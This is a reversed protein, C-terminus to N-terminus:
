LSDELTKYTHWAECIARANQAPDATDVPVRLVEERRAIGENYTKDYYLLLNEAVSQLDGGELDALAKKYRTGGLKKSVRSCAQALAQKDYQGYEEVLRQVRLPAPVEPVVCPAAKMQEWLPYPLRVQGISFSEDEIWVTRAPDLSEWVRHMNAHFQEVTPQQHQDLNGFASGKHNALGELDIVQEGSRRLEKLIDTKGTGTGGSVIVLPMPQEYAQLVHNRYAKYGGQLTHCTFGAKELLWAVSESRMGGRWCHILLNRGPAVQLASRVLQSMRPGILDLGLLVAEDKGKQKYCTGVRAREEDSFLPLSRARPIHGAAYEAPSRVDILPLTEVKELFLHVPLSRM